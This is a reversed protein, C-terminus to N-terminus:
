EAKLKAWVLEGKVKSKYVKQKYNKVNCTGTPLCFKFHHGPCIVAPKGHYDEIDGVLICIILLFFKKKM